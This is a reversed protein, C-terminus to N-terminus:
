NELEFVRSVRLRVIQRTTQQGGPNGFGGFGGQPGGQGGGPSGFGAPGGPGGPRGPGQPGGGRQGGGAPPGFQRFFSPGRVPDIHPDFTWRFSREDGGEAGDFGGGRGDAPGGGFGGAPGGFTQSAAEVVSEQMLNVERRVIVGRDIDFWFLQEVELKNTDGELTNLAQLREESQANFSAIVRVKATRRGNYWEVTELTGRGDLARMFQDVEDKQELNFDGTLFGSRWSDGVSVPRSPLIPLPAIVYLDSRFTEGATGELPWYNPASSFIERGTNSIRMYLPHMEYGYFRRPVTEGDVTLIAYDKGKDPLAQIRVLGESGYSNDIAYMVRYSEADLQQEAGQGGVQALAESLYSVTVKQSTGYKWEKGQNFRYRMTLGDAPVPISYNDVTVRVRSRNVIRPREGFDVFLVAELEHEGDEIKRKKTDLRYVYEEGVREPKVAEIFKGNVYIGIFADDPVSSAPFRMVVTERVKAGDAPRRITFGTQAAATGALVAAALVSILQKM